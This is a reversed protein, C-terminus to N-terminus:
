VSTNPGDFLELVPDDFIEKVPGFVECALQYFTQLIQPHDDDDSERLLDEVAISQATVVSAGSSLGPLNLRLPVGRVMMEGLDKCGYKERLDGACLRLVNPGGGREHRRDALREVSTETAKYGPGDDDLLTGSM